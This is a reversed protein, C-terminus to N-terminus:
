ESTNALNALSFICLEVLNIKLVEICVKDLIIIDSRGM